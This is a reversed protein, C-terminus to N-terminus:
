IVRVTFSIADDNLYNVISYVGPELELEQVSFIAMSGDTAESLTLPIDTTRSSTIQKLLKWGAGTATFFNKGYVTIASVSDSKITNPHQGYQSVGTIVPTDGEIEDGYPPRYVYDPSWELQGRCLKVFDIFRETLDHLTYNQGSHVLEALFASYRSQMVVTDETHVEEPPQGAGAEQTTTTVVKLTGNASLSLNASKSGDDAACEKLKKNEINGALKAVDEPVTVKENARITKLRKAM